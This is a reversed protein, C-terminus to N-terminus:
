PILLWNADDNVQGSGDGKVLDARGTRGRARLDGRAESRESSLRLVFASRRFVFLWKQREADTKQRFV